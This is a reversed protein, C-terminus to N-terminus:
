RVTIDTTVETPILGTIVHATGCRDCYISQGLAPGPDTLMPFTGCDTEVQVFVAQETSLGALEGPYDTNDSFM